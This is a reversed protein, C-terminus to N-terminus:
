GQHSIDRRVPKRIHCDLVKNPPPEATYVRSQLLNASAELTYATKTDSAVKLSLLLLFKLVATATLERNSVTNVSARRLLSM